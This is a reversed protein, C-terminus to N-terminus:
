SGRQQDRRRRGRSEAPPGPDDAEFSVLLKKLLVALREQEKTSLARLLSRENALHNPAIRDALEVGEATLQVLLSRGDDPDLVRAVLGARELRRLRQTMAGSTRMLGRYLDTPSSRFPPGGRRLSALVDWSERTLGFEGLGRELGQDLYRALRGLRAVVAVPATDLDPRTGAWQALVRDVHDSTDGDIKM